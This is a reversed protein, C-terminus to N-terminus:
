SRAGDETAGHRQGGHPSHAPKRAFSQAKAVLPLERWPQPLRSSSLICLASQLADLLALESTQGGQAQRLTSPTDGTPNKKRTM